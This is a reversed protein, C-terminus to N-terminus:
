DKFIRERCWRVVASRHKAHDAYRVSIASESDWDRNRYPLKSAWNLKGQNARMATYSLVIDEGNGYPSGGLEKVMQHTYRAAQGCIVAPVVVARTLVIPVNGYVYDANAPYVGDPGPCRGFIGSAGGYIQQANLLQMVTIEPLEIDDDAFLVLDTRALAAGAFRATLGPDSDCQINLVRVDATDCCTTAPNCNIVTVASVCRMQLYSSVFKTVNAPRAWNLMVVTLKPPMAFLMVLM